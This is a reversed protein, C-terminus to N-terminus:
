MIVHHIKLRFEEPVHSTNVEMPEPERENSESPDFEMAESEMPSDFEMSEDSDLQHDQVYEFDTLWIERSILERERVDMKRTFWLERSNSAFIQNEEDKGGIVTYLEYSIRIISKM